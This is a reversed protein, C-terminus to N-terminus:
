YNTEIDEYDPKVWLESDSMWKTSHMKLADEVKELAADRGATAVFLPLDVHQGLRAPQLLAKPLMEVADVRDTDFLLVLTSIFEGDEAEVRKRLDIVKELLDLPSYLAAAELISDKNIGDEVVLHPFAEVLLNTIGEHHYAIALRLLNQEEDLALRLDYRSILSKLIHYAGVRVLSPLVDHDRLFTLSVEAEALLLVEMLRINGSSVALMFPTSGESNEANVDAGYSLLLCATNPSATNHLVTRDGDLISIEAGSKILM